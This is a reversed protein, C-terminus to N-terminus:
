NCKRSPIAETFKFVNYSYGILEIHYKHKNSNEAITNKGPDNAQTIDFLQM